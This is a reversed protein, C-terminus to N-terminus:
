RNNRSVHQPAPKSRRAVEQVDCTDSHAPHAPAIEDIKGALIECSKTVHVPSVGVLVERVKVRVRGIQLLVNIMGIGRRSGAGPGSGFNIRLFGLRTERCNKMELIIQYRFGLTVGVIALHELLLFVDVTDHDRRGVVHVRGDRQRAHIEAFGDIDLLREGPGNVFGALERTAGFFGFYARLHAIL